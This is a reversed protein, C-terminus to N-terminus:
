HLTSLSVNEEVMMPFRFTFSTGVGCQSELEIEGGHAQIIEQVVALGLGTGRSKTTFFKDFIKTQIDAPIGPGNDRITIWVRKGDSGGNIAIEGNGPHEELAEIANKIINLFAQYLMKPDGMIPLDIDVAWQYDIHINKKEIAGSLTHIVQNVVEAVNIKRKEPERPKATGLLNNLIHELNEVQEKIIGAYQKLQEESIKKRELIRAFGGIAVLPNRIEHAIKASMEGIAALREAQLLQQQQEELRQYALQLETIREELAQYLRANELASGALSAFLRLGEVDEGSIERHNICNDAVIVGLAETKTYIPAVVFSDNNFLDILNQGNVEMSLPEAVGMVKGQKVRIVRRKKMAELFVHNEADLPVVIQGVIENVRRDVGQLDIKYIQVIDRLYHQERNLESWIRAAEEENSPGIALYGKLINNKRDALLIFARNFRLGQGATIAILTIRLIDKEDHTRYLIENLENLKSLELITRLLEFELDKRSQIDKVIESIGISVGNEDYVENRSIDVYILRGDKRRRQTEYKKLVGRRQVESNLFTLEGMELLEDPIITEISKGIMEDATFGFIAEAGANWERVINDHDLFIIADSTGEIISRYIKEKERLKEKMEESQTVDFGVRLTGYIHRDRDIVPFSFFEVYMKEKGTSLPLYYIKRTFESEATGRCEECLEDCPESTNLCKVFEGEEIQPFHQECFHNRWVVRNERDVVYIYVPYIGIFRDLLSLTQTLKELM